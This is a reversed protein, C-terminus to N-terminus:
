FQHKHTIRQILELLRESDFPKELFHFAGNRRADEAMRVDGHGTIFIIPTPTGRRNLEQQLELGTLGPLRVDLVLCLSEAPRYKALFREASAHTAVRHGASEILWRLSDRM